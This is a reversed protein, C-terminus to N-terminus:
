KKIAKLIEDVIQSLFRTKDQDESHKFVIIAPEEGGGIYRGEIQTNEELVKLISQKLNEQPESVLEISLVKAHSFLKQIDEKTRVGVSQVNTTQELPENPNDSYGENYLLCVKYVTLNKM